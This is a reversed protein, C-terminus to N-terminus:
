SGFSNLFEDIDGAPLDIYSETSTSVLRIYTPKEDVGNGALILTFEEGVPYSRTYLGTVMEVSYYEEFSDWSLDAGYRDVLAKLTRITLLNSIFADDASDEIFANEAPEEVNDNDIDVGEASPQAFWDMETLEEIVRQPIDTKSGSGLRIVAYAGTGGPYSEQIGDHLVLIKDGTELNNFSDRGTQNSMKIPWNDLVLMHTGERPELYRGVSFSLSKTAVLSVSVAILGICFLAPLIWKYRKM